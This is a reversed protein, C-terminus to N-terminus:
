GIMDILLTIVGIVSIESGGEYRIDYARPKIVLTCQYTYVVSFEEILLLDVGKKCVNCWVGRATIPTAYGVTWVVSPFRIYLPYKSKCQLTYFLM